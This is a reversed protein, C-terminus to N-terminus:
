HLQYSIKVDKWSSEMVPRRNTPCGECEVMLTKNDKWVISIRGADTLFVQGDEIAGRHDSSFWSWGKRINVHYLLGATAGCNRAYITAVYDGGPSNSASLTKEECVSCAAMGIMAAVIVIKITSTQARIM